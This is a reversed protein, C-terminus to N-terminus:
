NAGKGAISVSALDIGRDSAAQADARNRKVADPLTAEDSKMREILRAADNNARAFSRYLQMAASFGLDVSDLEDTRMGFYTLGKYYSRTIAAIVEFLRAPSSVTFGDDGAGFDIKMGGDKSVYTTIQSNARRLDPNYILGEVWFVYRNTKPNIDFSWHEFKCVVPVDEGVCVVQMRSAIGFDDWFEFSAELVHEQHEDLICIM